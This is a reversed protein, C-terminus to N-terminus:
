DTFIYGKPVVVIGNESITFRAKDKEADVGIWEGEPVVVDKDIICNKLIVGKGIRVNNLLLSNQISAQDDVFVNSFLISHQISGGSIVVGSSAISNIFIGETGDDGPVTRCPPSQEQYTRIQWDPQYLNIPPNPELLDMNANYYSDISDLGCWYGDPTVRGYKGGFSYSSVKYNQIFKPIIDQSINYSTQDDDYIKNFVELVADISFLYVGMSVNVEQLNGSIPKMNEPKERYDTIRGHADNTVLNYNNASEFPVSRCSITLDSGSEVHSRILPAYDMRYIHDGSLILVQKAGSRELLYLNQYIADATGKYWSDSTRMQPPVTTVYEGLEPNFISWGDRIHKQLSFSKYQTLVL